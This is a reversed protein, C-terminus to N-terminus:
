MGYVTGGDMVLEDLHALCVGAAALMSIIEPPVDTIDNQIDAEVVTIEGSGEETYAELKTGKPIGAEELLYDPIRIHQQDDLLEHCLSCNAVWRASDTQQIHPGCADCRCSGACDTSTGDGCNNCFCCAGVLDNTLKSAMIRLTDIACAVELATMQEKLIVLAEPGVHFELMGPEGFGCVECIEAPLGVQRHNNKNKTM